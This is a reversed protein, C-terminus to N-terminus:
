KNKHCYNKNYYIEAKAEGFDQIIENAYFDSFTPNCFFKLYNKYYDSFKPIRTKSEKRKYYRNLFEEIYDNILCDKFIAILRSSKSDILDNIKMINYENNNINYKQLNSYILKKFSMKKNKENLKKSNHVRFSLSIPIKIFSITNLSKTKNINNNKSIKNQNNKKNM